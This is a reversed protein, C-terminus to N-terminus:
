GVGRKRWYRALGAWLQELPAAVTYAAIQADSMSRRM